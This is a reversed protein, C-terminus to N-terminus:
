LGLPNIIMEISSEAQEIFYDDYDWEANDINENFGKECIEIFFMPLEDLTKLIFQEDIKLVSLASNGNEYKSYPDYIMESYKEKLQNYSKLSNHKLFNWTRYAKDYIYYYKFDVFSISSNKDQKGQIFTDFKERTFNKEKYGNNTIIKLCLADIQSMMQQFFQSYISKIIFKYQDARKDGALIARECAEDYELIGDSLYGLRADDEYEKPTKISNVTRSFENNWQSKIKKITDVFINVMYDYRHIKTPIYYATKRHEISNSPLCGFIKKYRKTDIRARGNKMLVGFYELTDYAHVLKSYDKKIRKSNKKM